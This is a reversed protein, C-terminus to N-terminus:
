VSMDRLDWVATLSRDGVRGLRALTAAVGPGDNLSACYEVDLAVRSLGSLGVSLALEAIEQAASPLAATPGSDALARIGELKVALEEMARGIMDEAGAEGLEVYLETLRDPNLRISEEQELVTVVAM